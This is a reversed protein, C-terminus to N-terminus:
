GNKKGKRSRAATASETGHYEAVLSLKGSRDYSRDGKIAMAQAMRIGRWWTFAIWAVAAGVSMEIAFPLDKLLLGLLLLFAAPAM